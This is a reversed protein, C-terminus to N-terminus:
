LQCSILYQLRNVPEARIFDGSFYNRVSSACTFIINKALAKLSLLILLEIYFALLFGYPM